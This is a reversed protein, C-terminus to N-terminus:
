KPAVPPEDLDGPGWAELPWVFAYTPMLVGSAWLFMGLLLFAFSLPAQQLAAALMFSGLTFLGVGFAGFATRSGKSRRVLEPAFLWAFAVAAPLVTALMFGLTPLDFGLDPLYVAGDHYGGGGGYYGGWGTLFLSLSRYGSSGLLTGMCYPGDLPCARPQSYAFFPFFFVLLFGALAAAAGIRIRRRRM